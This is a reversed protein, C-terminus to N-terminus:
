FPNKKRHINKSPNASFDEEKKGERFRRGTPNEEVTERRRGSSTGKQTQFRHLRRSESALTRVAVFQKKWIVPACLALAKTKLRVAALGPFPLALPRPQGLGVVLVVEPIGLVGFPSAVPLLLM